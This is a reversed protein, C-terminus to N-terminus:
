GKYWYRVSGVTGLFSRSGGALTAKEYENELGVIQEKAKDDLHNLLMTVRYKTEYETIHSEWQKKWVPYQLFASKEDGSFKPLMVTERKTSSFTPSTAAAVAGSGTASADLAPPISSPVDKMYKFGVTKCSEYEEVVEKNYQDMLDANDASPDLLMLQAKVTDFSAEIRTLEARMDVFSIEKAASLEVIRKSPSGFNEVEHKFKLRAKLYQDASELAKLKVAADMELSDLSKQPVSLYDGEQDLVEEEVTVVYDEHAKELASFASRTDQLIEKLRVVTPNVEIALKLSNQKRTFAALKTKRLNKLRKSEEEM